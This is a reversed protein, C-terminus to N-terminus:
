GDCAVTTAASLDSAGGSFVYGSGAATPPSGYSTTDTGYGFGGSVGPRPSDVPLLWTAGVLKQQVCPMSYHGAADTRAIALNNLGIVYAGSSPKGNPDTVTGATVKTDHLTTTTVSPVTIVPAPTPTTPTMRAPVTSTTDPVVVSAPTPCPVPGPPLSSDA